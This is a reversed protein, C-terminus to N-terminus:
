LIEFYVIDERYQRPVSNHTKVLIFGIYHIITCDNLSFTVLTHQGPGAFCNKAQVTM